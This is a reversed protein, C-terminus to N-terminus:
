NKKLKACTIALRKYEANVEALGETKSGNQEWTKLTALFETARTKSESLSAIFEAPQVATSEAKGLDALTKLANGAENGPFVDINDKGKHVAWVAKFCEDLKALQGALESLATNVVADSARVAAASPAVPPRVRILLDAAPPQAQAKAKLAAAERDKKLQQEKRWESMSSDLNNDLFQIVNTQNLKQATFVALSDGNPACIVLTNATAGYKKFREANAPVDAIRVFECVGANTFAQVVLKSEFVTRPPTSGNEKRYKEWVGVGDGVIQATAADCFFCVFPREKQGVKQTASQYSSQWPITALPPTIPATGPTQVM